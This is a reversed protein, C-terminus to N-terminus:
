LQASAIVPNIHKLVDALSRGYRRLGTRLDFAVCTGSSLRGVRYGPVNDSRSIEFFDFEETRRRRVRHWQGMVINAYAARTFIEEDGDTLLRGRSERHEM